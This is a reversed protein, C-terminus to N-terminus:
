QLYRRYNTSGSLGQLNASLLTTQKIQNKKKKMPNIPRKFRRSFEKVETQPNNEMKIERSLLCM